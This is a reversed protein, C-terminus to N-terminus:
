YHKRTRERKGFISLRERRANRKEIEAINLSILMIGV